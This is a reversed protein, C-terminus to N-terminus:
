LYFTGINSSGSAGEIVRKAGLQISNIILEHTKFSNTSETPQHCVPLCIYIYTYVCMRTCVCVCVCACVCVCVCVCACVLSYNLFRNYIIVIIKM